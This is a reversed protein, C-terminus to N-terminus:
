FLMPEEHFADLCKAGENKVSNVFDGVATAQMDAAPYPVLLKSLAELDDNMPNMWADYDTPKLIVPMRDHIPRMLENETTTVIACSELVEGNPGHWEEFLGAFAFLNQDRLRIHFGRKKKGTTQWEYFGDAPIICRHRKFATRFSPKEALTESRANLLKAGEDPHKSWSPVLGWTFYAPQRKLASNEADGSMVERIALVPQTPAINYRPEFFTFSAPLQFFEVLEDISTKLTYRGCM